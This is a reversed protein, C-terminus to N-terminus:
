SLLGRADIPMPECSGDAEKLWAADVLNSVVCVHNPIIAVRDGLTPKQDCRSVDIEGHEESLRVVVAEPYDPLLGRGLEQKGLCPDQTLSKSGADVVVKGPVAASIVTAIIRTACQNPTVIGLEVCNRDYYIYTGPRIETVAPAHHSQRATPTSGSSVIPAELNNKSWFDLTETVLAQLEGLKAPMDTTIHGSYTFLGDLRVGETKAVHQALQLAEQPTQVGTRRMGADLDPLIGVTAGAARAAQAIADIALISDAAVRLTIRKALDAIRRTRAADLAPYALLVDDCVESMVEAEGVKAVTLGVAGHALQRQAMRKSKHTKTHPRLKFHHAAAYTAMDALNREVQQADIVLAPTPVNDVNHESMPASMNRM